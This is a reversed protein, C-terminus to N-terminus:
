PSRSALRPQDLCAQWLSPSTAHPVTAAARATRFGELPVATRRSPRRRRMSRPSTSRSRTLARTPTLADTQPAATTASRSPSPLSALATPTQRPTYTLKHAAIDDASVSQGMTAPANDVELAGANPLTTLVVGAFSNAPSVDSDTFGFDSATFTYPTDEDTTVTKDTGAPPLEYTGSETFTYTGSSLDGNTTTTLTGMGSAGEFRGTGSAITYNSTSPNAFCNVNTISLTLTDETGSETLTASGTGSLCDSTSSTTGSAIPSGSEITGQTTVTYGNVTYSGTGNESLTAASATAAAASMGVAITAAITLVLMGLRRGSMAAVRGWRTARM